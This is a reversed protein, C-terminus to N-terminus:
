AIEHHARNRRTSFFDGCFDGCHTPGHSIIPHEKSNSIRPSRIRTNRFLLDTMVNCRAIMQMAPMKMAVPKAVEWAPAPTGSIHHLEGPFGAM